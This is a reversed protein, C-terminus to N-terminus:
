EEPKKIDEVGVVSANMLATVIEGLLPIFYAENFLTSYMYDSDSFGKRIILEKKEFENEEEIFLGSLEILYGDGKLPSNSNSGHQLLSIAENMFDDDSKSALRSLSMADARSLRRVSFSVIDGDFEITDKFTRSYNSM